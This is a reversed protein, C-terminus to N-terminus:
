FARVGPGRLRAVDQRRRAIVTVAFRVVGFRYRRVVLKRGRMLRYKAASAVGPLLRRGLRGERNRVRARRKQLADVALDDGLGPNIVGIARIAVVQVVLLRGPVVGGGGVEHVDGFGATRAVLAFVLEVDGAYV